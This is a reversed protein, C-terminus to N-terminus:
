RRHACPTYRPTISRESHLLRPTSLAGAHHLVRQVADQLQHWHPEQQGDKDKGDNCARGPSAMSASTGGSAALLGSVRAAKSSSSPSSLGSETCYALHSPRMTSCPSKPVDIVVRRVMRTSTKLRSGAVM